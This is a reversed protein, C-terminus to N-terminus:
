REILICMNTMFLIFELSSQWSLVNNSILISTVVEGINLIPLNFMNHHLLAYILFFYYGLNPLLISKHIILLPGTVSHRKATSIASTHLISAYPPIRQFKHSNQDINSTYMVYEYRTQRNCIRKTNLGIDVITKRTQLMRLKNGDITKSTYRTHIIAYSVWLKQDANAFSIM